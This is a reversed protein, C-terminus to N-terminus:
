FYKQPKGAMKCELQYSQYAKEVEAELNVILLPQIIKEVVLSIIEQYSFQSDIIPALITYCPQTTIKGNAVELNRQGLFSLHLKEQEIVENTALFLILKVHNLSIVM